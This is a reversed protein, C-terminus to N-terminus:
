KSSRSATTEPHKEGPAQYYVAGENRDGDLMGIAVIEGTLPSFGLGQKLDELARKYEDEDESDRRIWRTLNDQTAHDLTEFDEGITEIDFILKKTM